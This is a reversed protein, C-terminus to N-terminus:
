IKLDTTTFDAIVKDNHVIIFWNDCEGVQYIYTVNHLSYAGQIRKVEKIAFGNYLGYILTKQLLNDTVNPM